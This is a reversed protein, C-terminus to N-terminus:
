VSIAQALRVVDSHRFEDAVTASCENLLQSFPDSFVFKTHESPSTLSRIDIVMQPEEPEMDLVQHVRSDSKRQSTPPLM